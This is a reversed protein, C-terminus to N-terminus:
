RTSAIATQVHMLGCREGNVVGMQFVSIFGYSHDMHGDVCSEHPGCSHGGVVCDDTSVCQGM